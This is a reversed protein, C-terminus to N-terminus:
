HIVRFDSFPEKLQIEEKNVQTVKALVPGQNLFAELEGLQLDNGQVVVEVKGDSLNRVTGKLELARATNM